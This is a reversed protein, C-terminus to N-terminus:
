HAHDGSDAPTGDSWESVPVIFETVPEPAGNFHPALLVPADGLPAAGWTHADKVPVYFMLHPACNGCKSNLFGQKSLMYAMSGPELSPLEGKESAAKMGENMEAKSKGALALETRILTIPLLTKAAQPNYCVPGRRKPNWFEPSNEFQDMWSRDVNCVFGNKGEVATEYGQKGLVMVTADNSISPPAASRALAIEADRDMLYQDLPVMSAPYPNKADGARVPRAAGLVAVLALAGLTIKKVIKVKM